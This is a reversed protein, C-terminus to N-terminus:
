VSKGLRAYGKPSLRLRPTEKPTDGGEGRRKPGQRDMWRGVRERIM